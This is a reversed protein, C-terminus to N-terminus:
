GRGELHTLWDWEAAGTHQQSVWIVALLYSDSATPARRGYNLRTIWAMNTGGIGRMVESLPINGSSMQSPYFNALSGTFPFCVSSDPQSSTMLGGSSSRVASPKWSGGWSDGKSMQIRSVPWCGRRLLRFFFFVLHPQFRFCPQEWVGLYVAPFSGFCGISASSCIWLCTSFLQHQADAVHSIISESHTTPPEM